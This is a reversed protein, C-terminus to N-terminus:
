IALVAKAIEIQDTSFGAKDLHNLFASSRYRADLNIAQQYAERAKARDDKGYFAIAL